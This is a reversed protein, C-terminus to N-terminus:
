PQSNEMDMGKSCTASHENFVNVSTDYNEPTLNMKGCKCTVSKSVCPNKSKEWHKRWSSVAKYTHGCGCKPFNSQDPTSKQKPKTNTKTKTPAVQNTRKEKPQQTGTSSTKTTQTGSSGQAFTKDMRQKDQALVASSYKSSGSKRRTGNFTAQAKTPNLPILPQMCQSIVNELEGQNVDVQFHRLVANVIDAILKPDVLPTAKPFHTPPSIGGPNGDKSGLAAAYSKKKNATAVKLKEIYLPCEKSSHDPKRCNVCVASKSAPLDSPFLDV